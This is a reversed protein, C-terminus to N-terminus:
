QATLGGDVVLESGTMYSSEDSALFLAANCVDNASAFRGLPIEIERNRKLNKDPYVQSLMESEVPGPHISNARVNNKAYQLATSKTFVRVAAKSPNYATSIRSGLIGATSSINVISGGGAAIMKPLVSKTGLFVGKANVNMISDWQKEETDLIKGSRYIGANQVLITPLGFLQETKNILEIWSSEKTVDLYTFIVNGYDNQIKRQIQKGKASDIDAIIISAGESAFRRAQIAGLNGTGGTIIAVKNALRM